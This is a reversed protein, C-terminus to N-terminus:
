IPQTPNPQPDSGNASETLIAFSKFSKPVLAFFSIANSLFYFSTRFNSRSFHSFNIVREIARVNLLLFFQIDVFILYSIFTFIFHFEFCFESCFSFSIFNSAFYFESCFEFCFSFSIFHFVYRRGFTLCFIQRREM